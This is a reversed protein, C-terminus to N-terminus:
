GQSGAGDGAELMRRFLPGGNSGVLETELDVSAVGQSITQDVTGTISGEAASSHKTSMDSESPWEIHPVGAHIEFQRRCDALSGFQFSRDRDTGVRTDGLCPGLVARIKRSWVAKIEPKWARQQKSFDEFREYATATSITLGTSQWRDHGIEGEHLVHYLWADIGHLSQAQQEAKAATHPVARVDFGTLDINLLEYFMAAAGGNDIEAYLTVWYSKHQTGAFTNAVDLVFWRRDGIGAPVCWDNNSAVMIHLRNDVMIPDRFKAELQLKPETILAKLVGEAKKDGAFFAEDMFVFCSTALSANFRGTLQEGHAIHAFHKGFIEGLTRAVVGKGAGQAGRLAVAVGSPENPRQVACAMWKMLFDFLEQNGSCVVNLIHSRMLSWDGQKPEIGFGRWLNIMDDPADLPGGPEFVVGRGLYQRRDVSKFWAKSVPVYDDEQEVLVNAFMKHFEELKMFFIDGPPTCAIHIEGGYRVVAFSDNLADFLIKIDVGQRHLAKVAAVPNTTARCVKENTSFAARPTAPIALKLPSKITGKLPCTACHTCGADEFAKCSPWGYGHKKREALKRDFMENTEDSKYGPYGKSLYRAWRRGDEWFTTGFVTMHWLPQDHDKGKTKAADQFHPCGMFIGDPNLLLDAKIEIGDALSDTPEGPQRVRVPFNALYDPESLAAAVVKPPAVAVRIHGLASPFDYDEPQLGALKVPRPPNSKYNFTGPVRLVRACDTTLGYDCKLSHQQALAKLGEAYPLWDAVRLPVASIWYAHVGGGSLVIATPPPLSADVLFQELASIAQSKSVYAKDPKDPKVDIDLWISKLALANEARRVARENGGPQKPPATQSQLSLCFYIDKMVTPQAAGWQAMNRLDDVNRFPRGGMGKFKPFTWHLNIVGQAEPEPWPVVRSMFRTIESVATDGSTLSPECVNSM